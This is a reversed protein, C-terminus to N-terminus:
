EGKQLEQPLEVGQLLASLDAEGGQTEQMQQQAQAQQKAEQERKDVSELLKDSYAMTSNELFTRLDIANMQFLQMLFDNQIARYVQSSTSEGLSLDFDVDAIKSPDYLYEGRGGGGGIGIYRKDQFYQLVLKMNKKDREERLATFSEMLDSLMTVSNQTQLAYLSAPTNANVRQGQLAGSVGGVDELMRLQVGLMDYIGTNSANSILQHPSPMGAKAKYYIIGNHRKWEDAIQDISQGDPLAGEPMMLVGKASSKQVFDQMMILRNIHKQIDIADSIFSKAIGNFFPYIKLSYPHGKHSYPSEQEYLIYGEPSLFHCMWYRDVFYYVEILQLEEDQLGKARQEEIRLENERELRPLDLIEAIYYEGNLRDHCRLREKSEKTWVEIVRCMNDSTHLFDINDIREGTLEQLSYILQEETKLSYIERIKKAKLVDGFSFKSVVDGFPMDHIEGILDIGKHRPDENYGHFFIRNHNVLDTWVNSLDEESDFSYYSRYVALGTIIFSELGRRDLEWLHNTQYVYQLTASLMDGLSQKSKDRAVCIPESQNQSFQGLISRVMPAIRNNKFPINGDEEILTRETVWRGRRDKVKDGWQDGYVFRACREAERRFTDLNDWCRKAKLLINIDYKKDARAKRNDKETDYM